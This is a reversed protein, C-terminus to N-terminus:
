DELKEVIVKMQRSLTFLMRSDSCKTGDQPHKGVTGLDRSGPGCVVIVKM